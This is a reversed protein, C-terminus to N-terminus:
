RLGALGQALRAKEAASLNAGSHLLLYYAPPMEGQQIVEAVERLRHSSRDWESFNLESRGREVDSQVLWSIPALNSYWPWATLNSHCDFCARAALDHFAEDTWPPEVGVPPNTHQRGYPVLQIALLFVTGAAVFTLVIRRSM